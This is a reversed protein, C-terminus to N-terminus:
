SRFMSKTDDELAADEKLHVVDSSLTKKVANLTEKIKKRMETAIENQLALHGVNPRPLHRAAVTNPPYGNSAAIEQALRLSEASEQSGSSVAKATRFMNDAIAQKTLGKRSELEAGRFETIMSRQAASARMYKSSNM